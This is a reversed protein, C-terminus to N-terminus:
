CSDMYNKKIIVKILLLLWFENYINIEQIKKTNKTEFFCLIECLINTINGGYIIYTLM